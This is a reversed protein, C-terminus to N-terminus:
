LFPSTPHSLSYARLEFGLVVFFFFFNAFKEGSYPLRSALGSSSPPQLSRIYVKPGLRWGCGAEM